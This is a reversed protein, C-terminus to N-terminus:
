DCDNIAFGLSQLFERDRNTFNKPKPIATVLLYKSRSFAVYALRNIEDINDSFWNKWYFGSGKKYSSFILVSDKSLGKSSHITLIELPASNDGLDIALTDKILTDSLKKRIRIKYKEIDRNRM